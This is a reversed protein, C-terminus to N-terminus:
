CSDIRRFRLVCKGHDQWSVATDQIQQTISMRQSAMGYQAAKVRSHLLAGVDRRLTVIRELFTNGELEFRHLHEDPVAVRQAKQDFTLM